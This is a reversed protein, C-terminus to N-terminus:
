FLSQQAGANLPTDNGLPPLAPWEWHADKEKHDPRLKGGRITYVTSYSLEEVPIEYNLVERVGAESLEPDIWQKAMEHHVFLPMRHKNEGSNHIQAMLSNAPRTILTYTGEQYLEGTVTDVETSEQYLGPLFFLPTERLQVLYPVKNKWGTIQRHEYIGSVPILCRNNRIRYWYSKQDDLIRESRANIMGSRRAKREKPDKVYLPTVGWEMNTLQPVRDRTNIVYYLPLAHGEVHILADSNLELQRNDELDPFVDLTLQINTHFSVDYCM